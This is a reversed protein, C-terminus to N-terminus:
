NNITVGICRYTGAAIAQEAILDVGNNDFQAGVINESVQDFMMIYTRRTIASPLTLITDGSAIGATFTLKINFVIIGALNVINGLHSSIDANYSTPTIQTVQDPYAREYSGRYGVIMKHEQIAPNGATDRWVPAADAQQGKLANYLTNAILISSDDTPHIQDPMVQSSNYLITQGNWIFIGGAELCGDRYAPFVIDFYDDTNAKYPYAIEAVYVRARPNIAKADEIAGIVETKLDAYTYGMYGDNFGGAILVDTTYKRMYLGVCDRFNHGGTGTRIFGMGGASYKGVVDGDGNLLSVLEDGFGTYGTGGNMYSDGILLWQRNSRPLENLGTDDSQYHDESIRARIYCKMFPSDNEITVFAPQAGYSTKMLYLYYTPYIIGEIKVEVPDQTIYLRTASFLTSLNREMVIPHLRPPTLGDSEFGITWEAVGAGQYLRVKVPTTSPTTTAWEQYALMIAGIEYYRYNPDDADPTHAPASASCIPTLTDEPQLNFAQIVNAEPHRDNSNVKIKDPLPVASPASTPYYDVFQFPYTDSMGILVDINDCRFDCAKGGCLVAIRKQLGTYNATTYWVYFCADLNISMRSQKSGYVVYKGMNFYCGQFTNQQTANSSSPNNYIHMTKEYEADTLAAETGSAFQITSHCNVFSNGGAHLEFAVMTRNTIVQNYECDPCDIIVATTDDRSYNGENHYIMLNNHKAQLSTKNPTYDGDIKGVFLGATSFNIFKCADLVTYFGYQECGYGCRHLADFTGGLIRCASGYEQTHATEKTISIMPKDTNMQGGWFIRAGGFIVQQGGWEDYLYITDTIMYNGGKFIITKCPNEDICKQIAITDDNVGDGKAGYQEPMVPTEAGTEVSLEMIKEELYKQNKLLWDLNLDRTDLYPIEHVIM